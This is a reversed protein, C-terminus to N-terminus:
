IRIALLNEILNSMLALMSSIRLIFLSKRKYKVKNIIDYIERRKLIMETLKDNDFKYYTKQFLESLEITNSLIRKDTDTMELNAEHMERALYTLIDAIFKLDFIFNYYVLGKEQTKKNLLRHCYNTFRVIVEHQYLIEDLSIKKKMFDNLSLILTHSSVVIRTLMKEFEDEVVGTLDRIRCYRQKQEVIEWGILNHVTEQIFRLTSIRERKKTLTYESFNLEVDEFGQKYLFTLYRLILNENFGKFNISIHKPEGKVSTTIFLGDDRESVDIEDKHKLAHQKVWSSPLSITLTSNGQKVIRRKM